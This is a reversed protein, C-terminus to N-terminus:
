PVNAAAQTACEVWATISLKDSRETSSSCASSMAMTLSCTLRADAPLIAHGCLHDYTIFGKVEEPLELPGMRQLGPVSPLLYESLPDGDVRVAEKVLPQCAMVEPHEPSTGAVIGENFVPHDTAGYPLQLNEVPLLTM